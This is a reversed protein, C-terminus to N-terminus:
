AARGVPVNLAEFVGLTLQHYTAETTGLGWSKTGGLGQEWGEGLCSNSQVGELGLLHHQHEPKRLKQPGKCRDLM